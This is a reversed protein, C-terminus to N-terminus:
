RAPEPGPQTSSPVATPKEPEFDKVYMKYSFRVVPDDWSSIFGVGKIVKLLALAGLFNEEDKESWRVKIVPYRDVIEKVTGLFRAFEIYFFNNIKKDPIVKRFAEDNMISNRTNHTALNMVAEFDEIRIGSVLFSDVFMYGPALSIPTPIYHLVFDGKRIEKFGFALPLKFNNNGPERVLKIITREIFDKDKAEVFSLIGPLTVPFDDNPATLAVGFEPGLSNLLEEVNLGHDKEINNWFEDYKKKIKADEKVVEDLLKKIKAVNVVNTWWCLFASDPILASIDLKQPETCVISGLLSQPNRIGTKGEVQFGDNWTGYCVMEGALNQTVERWKKQLRSEVILNSDALMKDLLQQYLANDVYTLSVCGDPKKGLFNSFAARTEAKLKDISARIYSENNSIILIGNESFLSITPYPAFTTSVQYISHDGYNKVTYTSSSSFFSNLKVVVSGLQGKTGVKLFIEFDPYFEMPSFLLKSKSGKEPNKESGKLAHEPVLVAIAVDKGLFTKLNEEDFTVGLEKEIRQLTLKLYEWQEAGRINEILPNKGLSAYFNSRKFKEWLDGMNFFEFYFVPKKAVLQVFPVSEIKTGFHKKFFNWGFVGGIILLACLLGIVIKKM